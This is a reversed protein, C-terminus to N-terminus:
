ILDAVPMGDFLQTRDRGRRYDAWSIGRKQMTRRRSNTCKQMVATTTKVFDQGDFQRNTDNACSDKSSAELRRNCFLASFRETVILAFSIHTKKVQDLTSRQM